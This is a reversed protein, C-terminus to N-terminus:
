VFIDPMNIIYRFSLIAYLIGNIKGSLHTIKLKRSEDIIGDM